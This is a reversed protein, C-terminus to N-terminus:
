FLKLKKLAAKAAEEEATQKTKGQGTAVLKNQSFVGVTFIKSHDPGEEKLTKYIPSLKVKAQIKEQFVSKYDKLFGSQVLKKLLLRFNTKILKKVIELGQDLYLAGIFAELSNALILQNKQGGSEKEGKSLFLYNGLTFKKSIKALTETKVLNSRLNTLNGEPSSPFEEFLWESVVFNLITDGLFEFRENSSLKKDKAENLYSRHILAQILLDSNKFEIKFKKELDHINALPLNILNNKKM